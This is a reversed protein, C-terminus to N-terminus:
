KDKKSSKNKNNKKGQSKNNASSKKADKKSSAKKADEYTLPKYNPSQWRKYADNGLIHVDWRADRSVVNGKGDLLILTPIGGVKFQNSMKGRLPSAYPIALWKMKEGTMYEKMEDKSKDSSVFVVEFPLNKKACNDRFKVLEPTFARCPGCWHASFYLAIFKKNALASAGKVSKGNALVLTEKALEAVANFEENGPGVEEQAWVFCVVCFFLLFAKKM